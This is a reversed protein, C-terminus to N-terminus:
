IDRDESTGFYSNTHKCGSLKLSDEFIEGRGRSIIITTNETSKQTSFEM